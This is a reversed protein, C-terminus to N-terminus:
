CLVIRKIRHIAERITESSAAVSIRLHGEGAEGFALGPVTAVRAKELLKESLKISSPEIHSFDPFLYFTGKPKICEVGPIESLLDYALDRRERYKDVMMRVYDEAERLATLAAIQVAPSVCSAMYSHVVRIARTVDKSAVVYGIRWGTMAYTKSFSYISIVYERADQISAPSFHSIGDFVIKEYVEDSLLYIQKEASLRAICTLVDKPYVSGVPNNPTNIIIMKTKETIRDEIADVDLMYEPPKLPIPIPIGGALRVFGRYAPWAPEPILVEDGINVLAQIASFIAGYGGITVTIEGEPDATVSNERLLKEAIAERLEPIGAAFTYHTAGEDLARKAAEKIIKPTDFDPEGVHLGLVERMSGVRDMLKRIPSPEISSVRDSVKM